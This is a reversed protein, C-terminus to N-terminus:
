KRYEISIEEGSDNGKFKTGPELVVRLHFKHPQDWSADVIRGDSVELVPPAAFVYGNHIPTVFLEKGDKEIRFFWGLERNVNKGLVILEAERYTYPLTLVVVILTVVLFKTRKKSM